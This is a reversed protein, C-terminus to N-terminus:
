CNWYHIDPPLISVPASFLSAVGSFVARLFASRVRIQIRPWSFVARSSLSGSILIFM